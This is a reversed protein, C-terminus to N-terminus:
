FSPFLALYSLTAVNILFKFSLIDLSIGRVLPKAGKDTLTKM